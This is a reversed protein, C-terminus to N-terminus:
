NLPIKLREEEEKGKGKHGKLRRTHAAMNFKEWVKAMIKMEQLDKGKKGGHNQGM